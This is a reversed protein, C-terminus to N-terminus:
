SLLRIIETADAVNELDGILEMARTANSEAVPRAAFSICDRFKADLLEQDVPNDPNGPLKEPQCRLVRGDRTRIEVAPFTFRKEDGSVPRYSVRDAMALVAPDRLGEDTYDRLTVNGKAMMVATTFPISFKGDIALQPRRKREIPESLQKTNAHGGIITISEVDDPQLKYQRRLQLTATNTPRTYNCAPWVKFGHRALLAFRKGLGGVLANWDPDRARIYTKFLGYQGELFDKSGIMGRQALLASMVAGQGSFGAQMSRMHTSAGVAMQRTGSIQNFGIGLANEMQAEDLGLVRGATAAGAIFGFLQTAFWGEAATWEPIPISDDIRTMIDTGVAVATILDRGSIGGQKEALAFAAPITAISVHGAGVDDYDLMHGLGGNVFVAWPAPAKGGYGIITSEPKGGLDNVYECAIRGEVAMGSAGITVGLTDLVCRKTLAVLEPPLDEYKLTAAHRALKRTAGDGTEGAASAVQAPDAGEHRVQGSITNM